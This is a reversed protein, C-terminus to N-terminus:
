DPVHRMALAMLWYGLGFLAIPPGGLIMAGAKLRMGTALDREQQQSIIFTPDNEGQRIVAAYERDHEHLRATGPGETGTDALATDDSVPQAHSRPTATGFVYVDQGDELLRERFRMMGLRASQTMLSGHEHLYEAYPSPPVLGFCEEETGFNLRCDSGHPYVLAVGTDDQLFFPSGSANRHIVSWSGRNRGRVSIDVQWHACAKGSFPAIQTSRSSVRGHVEVLGMAMSRIRATPTNEILRLVHLQRFGKWFLWPGTGLAVAAM